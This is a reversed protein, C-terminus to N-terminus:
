SKQVFDNRTQFIEEDMKRGMQIAGIKEKEKIIEIYQRHTKIIHPAIEFRFRTRHIRLYNKMMEFSATLALDIGYSQYEQFREFRDMKGMIGRLYELGDQYPDDPTIVRNKQPSGKLKEFISRTDKQKSEKSEPKEEIPKQPQPPNFEISTPIQMELKFLKEKSYNVVPEFVGLASTIIVENKDYQEQNEIEYQYVKKSEPESPIAQFKYIALVAEQLKEHEKDLTDHGIRVIDVMRKQNYERSAVPPTYPSSM